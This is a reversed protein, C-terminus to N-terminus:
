FKASFGGRKRTNVSIGKQLSLVKVTQDKKKIKAWNKLGKCILGQMKLIAYSPRKLESKLM